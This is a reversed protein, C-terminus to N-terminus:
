GPTVEVRGAAGGDMALLVMSGLLAVAWVAPLLVIGGASLFTAADAAEAAPLVACAGVLRDAFAALLVPALPADDAAADTTAHSQLLVHRKMSLLCLLSVTAAGARHCKPQEAAKWAALKFPDTRRVSSKM